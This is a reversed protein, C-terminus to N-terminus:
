VCRGGDVPVDIGTLFNAEESGLFACTNGVDAPTSGRGLPITTMFVKENEPKGLFFDTLGTGLGVVPCVSNFRINDPAYEVAMSKSANIVAAKSANYWTLGGRPRLGATSAITIFSGGNKKEQLYPVLVQTSLYIARVNVTFVKDYEEETVEGTPKNRYTTGANNIVVDLRQFKDDVFKKLSEWDERKTVDTRHFECRLEQATKQGVDEVFDAIVVKAGEEIYKKAIGKGFGGGGGTVIAVKGELKGPM